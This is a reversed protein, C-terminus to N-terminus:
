LPGLAKLADRAAAPAELALGRVAIRSKITDLATSAKSM